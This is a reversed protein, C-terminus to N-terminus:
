PLSIAIAKTNQKTVQLCFGLRWYVDERSEFKSYGRNINKQLRYDEISLRLAIPSVLSKIFDVKLMGGSLKDCDVGSQLRFYIM